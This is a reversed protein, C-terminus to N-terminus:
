EKHVLHEKGREKKDAQLAAVMWVFVAELRFSFSSFFSPPFYMVPPSGSPIFRLLLLFFRKLQHTQQKGDKERPTM